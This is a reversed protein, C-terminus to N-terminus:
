RHSNLSPSVPEEGDQKMERIKTTYIPTNSVVAKKTYDPTSSAASISQYKNLSVDFYELDIKQGLVFNVFDKREDKILVATKTEEDVHHNEKLMNLDVYYYEKGQIEILEYFSQQEIAPPKAPTTIQLKDFFNKFIDKKQPPIPVRIRYSLNEMICASITSHTTLFYDGKFAPTKKLEEFLKIFATVNEEDQLVGLHKMQPDYPCQQHLPSKEYIAKFEAKLHEPLSLEIEIPPPRNKLGEKTLKKMKEIPYQKGKPLSNATFALDDNYIPVKDLSEILKPTWTSFGMTYNSFGSKGATKYFLINSRNMLEEFQQAKKNNMQVTITEDLHEGLIDKFGNNYKTTEILNSNLKYNKGGTKCLEPLAMGFKEVNDRISKNIEEPDETLNTNFEIRIIHVGRATNTSRIKFKETLYDESQLYTRLTNIFDENNTRIMVDYFGAEEAKMAQQKLMMGGLSAGLLSGLGSGVKPKGKATQVTPEPSKETTTTQEPEPSIDPAVLAQQLETLTKKKLDNSAQDDFNAILTQISLNIKKLEDEFKLAFEKSKKALKKDTSAMTNEIFDDLGLDIHIQRSIQNALENMPTLKESLLNFIEQDFPMAKSYNVNWYKPLAAKYKEVFKAVYVELKEASLTSQTLPAENKMGLEQLTEDHIRNITKRGTFIQILKTYQYPKLVFSPHHAITDINIGLEILRDAIDEFKQNFENASLDSKLSITFNVSNPNKTKKLLGQALFLSVLQAQIEPVATPTKEQASPIKKPALQGYMQKMEFKVRRRGESRLIDALGTVSVFASADLDFGNKDFKEEVVPATPEAIPVEKKKTKGKGALISAMLNNPMPSVPKGEGSVPTTREAIPVENKKAKGKNALISTMLNSPMPSVPKVEGGVPTTREAIPVENKKAKGKNALISTMLNSPMPSVPKVEGGVPTTREAIPVENKKAKGKNALISTMLNSPMPSVPKVEVSNNSTEVTTIPVDPKQNITSDTVASAETDKSARDLIASTYSIPASPTRQFKNDKIETDDVVSQLIPTASHVNTEELHEHRNEDSLDPVINTSTKFGLFKMLKQYLSDITDINMESQSTTERELESQIWNTVNILPDDPLFVKHVRDISKIYGFRIRNAEKLFLLIYKLLTTNVIETDKQKKSVLLMDIHAKYKDLQAYNKRYFARSITGYDEMVIDTFEKINEGNATLWESLQTM